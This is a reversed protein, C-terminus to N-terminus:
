LDRSYCTWLNKVWGFENRLRRGFRREIPAAVLAQAEEYGMHAAIECGRNQLALLTSYRQQPTAFTKDVLLFAEMTRKGFVAMRPVNGEDVAVLRVVMNKGAVDPLEYAFGQAKFMERVTEDDGREAWRIRV